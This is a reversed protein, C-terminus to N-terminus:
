QWRYVCLSLRLSLIRSPPGQRLDIHYTHSLAKNEMDAGGMYFLHQGIAVSAGRHLNVPLEIEKIEDLRDANVVKMSSGNLLGGLLVIDM